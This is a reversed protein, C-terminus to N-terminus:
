PALTSGGWIEGTRAQEAEVDVSDVFSAGSLRELARRFAAADVPNETRAHRAARVKDRVSSAGDATSVGGSPVGWRARRESILSSAVRGVTDRATELHGRNKKVGRLDTIQERTRSLLDIQKSTPRYDLQGLAERLADATHEPKTSSTVGRYVQAVADAIASVQRYHDAEIANEFQKALAAHADRIATAVEASLTGREAQAVLNALLLLVARADSHFAEAVDDPTAM